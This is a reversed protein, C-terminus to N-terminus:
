WNGCSTSRQDQTPAPGPPTVLSSGWRDRQPDSEAGSDSPGLSASANEEAKVATSAARAQCHTPRDRAANNRTSSRDQRSPDARITTRMGQGVRGFGFGADDARERRVKRKRRGHDVPQAWTTVMSSRINNSVCDTGPHLQIQTQPAQSEDDGTAGMRRIAFVGAIARSWNSIKRLLRLANEGREVIIRVAKAFPQRLPEMSEVSGPQRRGSDGKAFRRRVRCDALAWWGEGDRDSLGPGRHESAISASSRLRWRFRRGDTVDACPGVRRSLQGAARKRGVGVGTSTVENPLGGRATTSRRGRHVSRRIIWRISGGGNPPPPNCRFSIGISRARAASRVVAARVLM